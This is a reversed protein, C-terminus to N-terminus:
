SDQESSFAKEIKRTDELILLRTIKGAVITFRMAINAAYKKGTEQVLRNAVAFIAAQEGDIFVHDIDFSEQGPVHAEFLLKLAKEVEERKSRKGTWPMFPSEAIYFDPTESFFSATSRENLQGASEFFGNIVEQTSSVQTTNDM